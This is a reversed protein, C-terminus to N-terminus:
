ALFGGQGVTAILHDLFQQEHADLPGACRWRNEYVFFAQTEDIEEAGNNWLLSKLVPYDAVHVTQM